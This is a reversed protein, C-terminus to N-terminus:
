DSVERCWGVSGWSLYVYEPNAKLPLLKIYGRFLLINGPQVKLIGLSYMIHFGVLKGLQFFKGIVSAVGM